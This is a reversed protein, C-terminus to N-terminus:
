ARVRGKKGGHDPVAAPMPPMFVVPAPTSPEAGLWVPEHRPHQAKVRKEAVGIWEDLTGGTMDGCVLPVPPSAPARYDCRPCRVHQLRTQISVSIWDAIEKNAKAQQAGGWDDDRYRITHPHRSWPPCEGAPIHHQGCMGEETRARPM